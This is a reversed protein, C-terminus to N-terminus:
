RDEAWQLYSDLWLSPNLQSVIPRSDLHLYDAATAIGPGEALRRLRTDNAPLSQLYTSLDHLWMQGATDGSYYLREVTDVLQSRVQDPTATSM